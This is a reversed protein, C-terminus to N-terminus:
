IRLSFPRPPSGPPSHTTIVVGAEMSAPLLGGYLTSIATAAPAGLHALAPSIAIFDATAHDCRQKTSTLSAGTGDSAVPIGSASVHHHAEPHHAQGALQPACAWQCALTTAPLAGSSLLVCAAVPQLVRRVSADTYM